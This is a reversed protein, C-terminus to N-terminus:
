FARGKQHAPVCSKCTKKGQQAGIVHTDGRWLTCSLSRGWSFHHIEAVCSACLIEGNFGPRQLSDTLPPSPAPRGGFEAPHLAARGHTLTVVRFGSTPIPSFSRREDTFRPPDPAQM